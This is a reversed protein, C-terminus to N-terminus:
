FLRTVDPMIVRDNDDVIGAIYGSENVLIDLHGHISKVEFTVSGTSNLTLDYVKDCLKYTQWVRYANAKVKDSVANACYGDWGEVSVFSFISAHETEFANM